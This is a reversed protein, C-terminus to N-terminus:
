ATSEGQHPTEPKPRVGKRLGIRTELEAMRDLVQRDEPHRRHIRRYIELATGVHGQQAYVEALSKTEFFIRRGKGSVGASTRDEQASQDTEKLEGDEVPVSESLTWGGSEGQDEQDAFRYHGWVSTDLLIQRKAGAAWPSGAPMMM